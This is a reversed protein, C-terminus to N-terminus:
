SLPRRLLCAPREQRAGVVGMTAINLGICLGSGWLCVPAAPETASDLSCRNEDSDTGLTDREYQCRWQKCPNQRSEACDLYGSAVASVRPTGLHGLRELPTGLQRNGGAEQGGVGAAQTFFDM